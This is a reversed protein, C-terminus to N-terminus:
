CPRIRESPELCSDKRAKGKKQYSGATRPIGQSTNLLHMVGTAVETRVDDEERLTQRRQTERQMDEAKKYM